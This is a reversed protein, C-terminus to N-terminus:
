LEFSKIEGNQRLLHFPRSMSPFDIFCVDNDRGSGRTMESFNSLSTANM